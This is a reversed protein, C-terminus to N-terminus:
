NAERTQGYMLFHLFSVRHHVTRRSFVGTGQCYEPFEECKISDLNIGPKVVAVWSDRAEALNIWNM